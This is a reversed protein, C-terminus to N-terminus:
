ECVPGVAGKSDAGVCVGGRSGSTGFGAAMFSCEGGGLVQLAGLVQWALALRVVLFWGRRSNLLCWM